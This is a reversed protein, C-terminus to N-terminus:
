GRGRPPRAPRGLPELTVVLAAQTRRDVWGTRVTLAEVQADDAWAVGNLGDLVNKAINDVDRPRREYRMALVGVAWATTAEPRHGPYAARFAAAVAQQAALTARPTYTGNRTVRPRAAAQPEGPVTFPIM